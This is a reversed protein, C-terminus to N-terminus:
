IIGVRTGEEAGQKVRMPPRHPAVEKEPFDPADDFGMPPQAVEEEENTTAITCTALALALVEEALAEKPVNKLLMRLEEPSSRVLSMETGRVAEFSFFMPRPMDLETEQSIWEPAPSTNVFVTWVLSPGQQARGEIVPAAAVPVVGSLCGFLVPWWARRNGPKRVLM